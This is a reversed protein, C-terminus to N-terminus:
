YYLNFVLNNLFHYLMTSYITKTKKFLYYDLIAFIFINIKGDLWTYQEHVSAFIFASIFCVIKNNEFM